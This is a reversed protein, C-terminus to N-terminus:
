YRANSLFVCSENAENARCTTGDLPFFSFFKMELLFHTKSPVLSMCTDRCFKEALNLLSQLSHFDNSLLIEDDAAAICALSFPGSSSFQKIQTM